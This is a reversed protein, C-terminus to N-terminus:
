RVEVAADGSAVPVPLAAREVDTPFCKCATGTGGLVYLYDGIAFAAALDRGVALTAAISSFTGLNGDTDLPAYEVSRRDSGGILYVAHGTAVGTPWKRGAVLLEPYPEFSTLSGDALIAAREVTNAGDGESGAVYAYKGATFGFTWGRAKATKTGADGFLSLYGNKDIAARQVSREDPGGGVVYVYRPTVFVPGEVAWALQGWPEIPGIEGDHLTARSVSDVPAGRDTSYGGLLYVFRGVTAAVPSHTAALRPELLGFSGLEGEEDLSSRLLGQRDDAGFLLLHNGAVVGKAGILDTPLSVPASAFPGLALVAIDLPDAALTGLTPRVSATGERTGATYVVTAGADGALDGPGDITEAWAPLPAQGFDDPATGERLRWSHTASLSMPTEFLLMRVADPTPDWPQKAAVITLGEAAWFVANSTSRVGDILVALGGIVADDPVQVLLSTPGAELIPAPVPGDPGAFHVEPSAWDVTLNSGSLTVTSGPNGANASLEAIEPVFLSALEIDVDTQRSSVVNVTATGRAIAPAEGGAPAAPFAEVTVALNSGAELSLLATSEAQGQERTVSARAVAADSADRVTIDLRSTSDPILQAHYGRLDRGPGGPWNIELRLTGRGARRAVTAGAVAASGSLARVLPEQSFPNDAPAPRFWNCGNAAALTLAAVAIAARHALHRPM